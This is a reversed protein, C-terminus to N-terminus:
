KRSHVRKWHFGTFRVSSLRKNNTVICRAVINIQFIIPVSIAASIYLATGRARRPVRPFTLTGGKIRISCIYPFILSQPKATALSFPYRRYQISFRRHPASRPESAPGINTTPQCLTCFFYFFFVM